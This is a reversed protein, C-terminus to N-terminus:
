PLGMVGEAIPSLEKREEKKEEIRDGPPAGKQFTHSTQHSSSNFSKNEIIFSDWEEFDDSKHPINNEDVTITGKRDLHIEDTADNDKVRALEKGEASRYV